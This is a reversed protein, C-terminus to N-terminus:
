QDIRDPDFLPLEDQAAYGDSTVVLIRHIEPEVLIRDGPRVDANTLVGTPLVNRGGDDVILTTEGEWAAEIARAERSPPPKPLASPMADSWALSESGITLRAPGSAIAKRMRQSAHDLECAPGKPDPQRERICEGVASRVVDVLPSSAREGGEQQCKMGLSMQGGDLYGDQGLDVGINELVRKVSRGHELVKILDSFMMAAASGQVVHNVNIGLFEDDNNEQIRSM